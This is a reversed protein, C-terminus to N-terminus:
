RAFMWLLPVLALLAALISGLTVLRKRAERRAMAEAEDRNRRVAERARREAEISAGEFAAGMRFGGKIIDRLEEATRAHWWAASYIEPEAETSGREPSKLLDELSM